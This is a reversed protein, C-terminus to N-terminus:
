PRRPAAPSRANNRPAALLDLAAPTVDFSLSVSKGDANLAVSDLM